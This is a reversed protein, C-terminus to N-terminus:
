VLNKKNVLYETLEEEIHDSLSGSDSDIRFVAAAANRPLGAEVANGAQRIAEALTFTQAFLGPVGRFLVVGLLAIYLPTKKM